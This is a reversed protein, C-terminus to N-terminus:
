VIAPAVRGQLHVTSNSFIAYGFTLFFHWYTFGSGDSVRRNFLFRGYIARTTKDYCIAVTFFIMLFKNSTDLAVPPRNSTKNVANIDKIYCIGTWRSYSMQLMCLPRSFESLLTHNGTGVTATTPRRSPQLVLGIHHIWLRWGQLEPFRTLLLLAEAFPLNWGWTGDVVCGSREWYSTVRRYPPIEKHLFPLM